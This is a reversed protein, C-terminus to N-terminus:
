SGNTHDRLLANIANVMAVVRERDEIAAEIESVTEPSVDYGVVVRYLGDEFQDGAMIIAQGRDPIPSRVVRGWTSQLKM